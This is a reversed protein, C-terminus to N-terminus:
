ATHCCDKELIKAVVTVVAIPCYNSPDDPAGGKYVPTIHSRKWALPVVKHKLSYNFSNTLPVVIESAVEKLFRSSLQDSGTSKKVDLSSLHTFVTSYDVKTFVFKNGVHEGLLVTSLVM